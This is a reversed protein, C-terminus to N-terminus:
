SVPLTGLEGRGPLSEMAGVRGVAISGARVAREVAPAVSELTFDRHDPRALVGDLLAAVFADGAGTPDVVPVRPAAFHRMGELTHMTAGRAGDTVLVLSRHSRAMEGPALGIEALEEPTAKVITARDILERAARRMVARSPWASVRLNVDLSVTSGAARATEVALRTARRSAPDAMSLTGVHLVRASRIAELPIEGASLAAAATGSRYILFRVLSDGPPMVAAVMTPRRADRQVWTTDVGADGMSGLLLSGLPDVGVRGVFAVRRGLRALGVAVNAPAGGPRAAYRWPGAAEVPIFDVLTEGLAVVEPQM